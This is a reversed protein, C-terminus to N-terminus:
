LYKLKEEFDGCWEDKSITPFKGFTSDLTTTPSHRKCFGFHYPRKYEDLGPKIWFYKCLYCAEKKM